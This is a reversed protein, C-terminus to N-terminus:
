ANRYKYLATAISWELLLLIEMGLLAVLRSQTSPPGGVQNFFDELSISFQGMALIWLAALLVLVTLSVSRLYSENRQRNFGDTLGVLVAPLGALIFLALLQGLLADFPFTSTGPPFFGSAGAEIWSAAWVGVVLAQALIYRIKM